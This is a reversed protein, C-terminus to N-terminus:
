RPEGLTVCCMFDANKSKGFLSDAFIKQEPQHIRQHVVEIIHFGILTNKDFLFCESIIINSIYCIFNIKDLAFRM